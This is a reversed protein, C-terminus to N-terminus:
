DGGTANTSELSEDDQQDEASGDRPTEALRVVHLGLGQPDIPTGDRVVELHLHPTIWRHRANGTKGVTGIMAGQSIHEGTNVTITDLHAYLSHLHASHALEVYRGLGRHTAVRVVWGSRIARVPSKLAAVLDIGRHFRHGSRPAGFYGKGKADQRIVLPQADVPPVIAHWNIYPEERGAVLLVSLLVGSALVGWGIWRRMQRIAQTDVRQAHSHRKSTVAGGRM